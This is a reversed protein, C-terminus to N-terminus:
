SGKPILLIFIPKKNVHKKIFHIKYDPSLLYLILFIENMFSEKKKRKESKSTDWRIPGREVGRSLYKDKRERRKIADSAIFLIEMILSMETIKRVAKERKRRNSLSISNPRAPIERNVKVNDKNGM